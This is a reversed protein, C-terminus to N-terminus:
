PKPKWDKFSRRVPPKVDKLPSAEPRLHEPIDDPLDDVEGTPAPAAKRTGPARVSIAPTRYVPEAMQHIVRPRPISIKM